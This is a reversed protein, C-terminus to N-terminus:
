SQSVLPQAACRTGGQDPQGLSHGALVPRALHHAPDRASGSSASTAAFRPWPSRSGGAGSSGAWSRQPNPMSTPACSPERSGEADRVLVWRILVRRGPHHWLATAVDLRHRTRGYWGQIVVRQWATTPDAVRETLTPLKSAPAARTGLAAPHNMCAPMSACGPSSTWTRASPACCSSSRSAATPSRSSGPLWRATQLLAQCDTLKKHRRGQKQASRESPALFPLAWVCSAWPIPGLLMVCLWGLGSAKVFHGHSSRVPKSGTGCAVSAVRRYPLLSPSVQSGGERYIGRAKIKTGWRREITDDLGIVVPGDRVFAAVLLHLLRHAIRRASWRATSLVRHYVAFSASQDLVRLAASVTRRSLLAGAVLVLTAGTFCRVFPWMWDALSRPVTGVM